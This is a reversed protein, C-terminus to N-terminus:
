FKKSLQPSQVELPKGITSFKNVLQHGARQHMQLFSPVISAALNFGPIYTRAIQSWSTDSRDDSSFTNLTVLPPRPQDDSEKLSRRGESLIIVELSQKLSPTTSTPPPMEATPKLDSAQPNPIVGVPANFVANTAPTVGLAIQTPQMDAQKDIANPKKSHHHHGHHSKTEKAKNKKDLKETEQVHKDQESIKKHHHRKRHHHKEKGKESVQESEPGDKLM